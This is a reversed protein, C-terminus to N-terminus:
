HRATVTFPIQTSGGSFTYVGVYWYGAAPNAVTCVENATSGQSRCAFTSTTPRAGQRVFLDLDPNCRFGSPQCTGALTVSLSAAGSPVQIKYYRWTGTAGNSGATAVGNTLNPTSPDPDPGPGPGPGPGPTGVFGSYLLRNPSGTGPNGVRGATAKTVIASSVAAPSAAPTTQLYLAAVGAVHPSAM